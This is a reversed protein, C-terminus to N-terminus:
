SWLATKGLIRGNLRVAPIANGFLATVWSTDIDLTSSLSSGLTKNKVYTPVLGNTASGSGIGLTNTAHTNRLVLWYLGPLLAVPPSACASDRTSAASATFSDTGNAGAIENVTVGSNDDLYLRWESSRALTTDTNRYSIGQLSMRAPVFIPCLLSGGVAPLANPVAIGNTAYQLPHFGWAAFGAVLGAAVTSLVGATSQITTGDVEVIGFQSSSAKQIAPAADSRMFTTAVGNVATDKATATPNAATPVVASIVGGTATISTGDVEVIGFQSSSAKQVAPAADSRMFTLASGNVATDKATATPNAATPVVASIVGGTATISTGDVEVIGFQSSSAKQVAPAADSRMFTLASGNVATDKAIGTPNAGVPVVVTKSKGQVDSIKILHAPGEGSDTRGLIYGSPIRDRLGRIVRKISM